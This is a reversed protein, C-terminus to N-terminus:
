DRGALLLAIVDALEAANGTDPGSGKLSALREYVDAAAVHFGGPLDNAAFTAAIEEMEPAFRWAKPGVRAPSRRARELLDPMSTTWEDELSPTVGEAEALAAIAFLLASTGKTWAAFCMKVASAAGVNGDVVRVELDSGGFLEVVAASRRGSVYLRTSGPRTVPPGVIGGDVADAFPECVARATAPAVANADVFLGAFGAAHVAQAVDGAAAPPCVSVITESEACLQDLEAVPEIGAVAARQKTEESRGHDVWLVRHGAAVLCAGVTAGM